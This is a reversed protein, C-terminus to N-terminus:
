PTPELHHGNFMANIEARPQFLRLRRRQVIKVLQKVSPHLAEADIPQNPDYSPDDAVWNPYRNAIVDHLDFTRLFFDKSTQQNLMAVKRGIPCICFGTARMLIRHETDYSDIETRFTTGAYSPHFIASFGSGGCKVCNRSAERAGELTFDEAIAAFPVPQGLRNQPDHLRM